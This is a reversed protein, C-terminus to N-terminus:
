VAASDLGRELLRDAAAEKNEVLVPESRDADHLAQAQEWGVGLHKSSIWNDFEYRETDNVLTHIISQGTVDFDACIYVKFDDIRAAMEDILVRAAVVSMGKTSALALDFRELIGSEAIQETFGEKEVFLLGKFRHEPDLESLQGVRNV